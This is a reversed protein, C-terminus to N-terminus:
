KEDLWQEIEEFVANNSFVKGELVQQESESIAKIHRENLQYVQDATSKTEILVKIVSLFSEDNITAIKNTLFTRLEMVSM